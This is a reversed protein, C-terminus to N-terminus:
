LMSNLNIEYIIGSSFFSYFCSNYQSLDENIVASFNYYGSGGLIKKNNGLKIRKKRDVISIEANTGANGMGIILDGSIIMGIRSGTLSVFALNTAGLIDNARTTFDIDVDKFEILEYQFSSVYLDKNDNSLCLGSCHILDNILVYDERTGTNSFRAIIYSNLVSDKYYIYYKTGSSNICFKEEGTDIYNTVAFSNTVSGGSINKIMGDSCLAKINNSFINMDKVNATTNVSSIITTLDDYNLTEVVNNGVGRILNLKGNTSNLLLLYKRDAIGGNLSTYWKDLKYSVSIPDIDYKRQRVFFTSTGSNYFLNSTNLNDTINDVNAVGTSSITIDDGVLSISTNAGAKLKYLENNGANLGKFVGQGTGVNLLPNGGSSTSNITIDNANNTLTINSGAVLSKFELNTGVKQKFVGQGTGVNSATNAEGLGGTSNVTIDNGSDTLSINTGAKISKFDLINSNLQKFLGSGTGVNNANIVINGTIGGLDYVYLGTVGSVTDPIYIKTGGLSINYSFANPVLTSIIPSFTLGDDTSKFLYYNIGDASGQIYIDTGIKEIGFASFINRTSQLSFSSGSNISKYLYNVVGNTALCYINVGDTTATESISGIPLSVPALWTLGGDISKYIKEAETFFINTGDITELSVVNIFYVKITSVLSYTIGSNISKYLYHNSGDRAVIFSTTNNIAKICELVLSGSNWGNTFTIGGDNSILVQNQTPYGVFSIALVNNNDIGAVWMFWNTSNPHTFTPPATTIGIDKWYANIGDTSLIKGNNGTQNPLSNVIDWYATVGNNTLYKGTQGVMSPITPNVWQFNLGDSGIVLGNKGTPDFGSFGTISNIRDNLYKLPVFQTDVTPITYVLQQPIEAFTKVGSSVTQSTTLDLAYTWKLSGTVSVGDTQLFKNTEGTQPPLKNILSDDVYKKTTFENDLIPVSYVSQRPLVSYQKLSTIVQPNTIDVFEKWVLGSISPSLGKNYDGAIYTPIHIFSNAIHNISNTIATDIMAHTNSGINSLQGHDTPITFNQWYYSVGDNTLLKGSQGIVSPVGSTLNLYTKIDLAPIKRSLKGTPRVVYFVDTDQLPLQIAPLDTLKNGSFIM